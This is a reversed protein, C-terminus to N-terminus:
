RGGHTKIAHRLYYILMGTHIVLVLVFACVMGLAGYLYIAPPVLLFNLIVTYNMVRMFARKEQMIILSNSFLAGFPLTLIRLLFIGLLISIERNYSGSVLVIITDKFYYAILVFIFAVAFYIVSVKKVFRVFYSFHEKYKKALYPYITRNAPDFLGGIAVVIKEAIAYYGVVTNGTFFGLLMVNTTTYLSVYIRSLFIHWGERLYHMLREKSQRRFHVGFNKNVLVLSWIGAIIAGLSTLLPVLYYDEREKVFLFIAVTFIVKSLINLYTIYQMREMGQFFWVPFLVQGIVVGFSLLYVEKYAAFKEFTFILLLLLLFSFLMLFFKIIMVSSFIETVKEPEERHISIERTATLNFGYDTLIGFYTVTATAFALLGFYEIGLVRVLYPFTILPLIYNSGQLLALSGFNALLRKRTATGTLKKVKAIM